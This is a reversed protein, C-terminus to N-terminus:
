SKGCYENYFDLVKEMTDIHFEFLHGRDKYEIFRFRPDDGYVDFFKDYGNEPLVVTDDRSQIIMIGADSVAFGDIASYDAYKGFKLKEYLCVYPMFLKIGVGAMAEGQQECLDASRDFGSVLAAAKIDPHCNLVSGASYGGWSHGYLVIPLNKYEEAQKVYRLAYDLDIVGQPLGEISNGESKDNGTIDYAFVYYGNSTFYDSFRMYSKQGGVGFGHALVVVGKIKQQNEKYYQYGALLQGSNSPFTCEKMKLGEFDSVSHTLWRPTEFRSGFNANYIIVTLVPMVILVIVALFITIRIIVAKIKKKKNKIQEMEKEGFKYDKGVAM